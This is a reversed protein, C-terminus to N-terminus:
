ISYTSYIEKVNQRKTNLDVAVVVGRSLVLRSTVKILNDPEDVLDIAVIALYYRVIKKDKHDGMMFLGESREQM